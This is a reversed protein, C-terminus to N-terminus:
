VAHTYLVIAVAGRLRALSADKAPRLIPVLRLPHLAFEDQVVSGLEHWLTTIDGVLVIERPALGTALMRLGRGLAACQKRLARLATKDGNQALRLIGDFSPLVACGSLEQYYRIAARNSALTEWCGQAGCACIPGKPDLQVHGFEGAMGSEGRVLQGGMFIGTGIGEAVNVVILNRMHEPSGSWVEAIACANAVNDIEVPLGTAREIQDKISLVPWRLNPAFILKSLKLDARGPLCVGIGSFTREPDAGIMRVVEAILTRLGLKADSPLEVVRQLVIRGDLDAIALTTQTPHIDIALVSRSSNLRLYTPRRGRPLHGLTGAVVWRDAILQEVIISITSRPLGCLRALDARSINENSRILNLVLNRNIERPTRNSASLRQAGDASHHPLRSKHSPRDISTLHTPSVM